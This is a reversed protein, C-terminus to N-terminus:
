QLKYTRCARWLIIQITRDWKKTPRHTSRKEKLSWTQLTKFCTLRQLWSSISWQHRSWRIIGHVWLTTQFSHCAWPTASIQRRKFRGRRQMPSSTISIDTMLLKILITSRPASGRHLWSSRRLSVLKRKKWRWLSIISWCQRLRRPRNVCETIKIQM